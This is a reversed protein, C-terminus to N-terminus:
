DSLGIHFPVVLKKLMKEAVTWTESINSADGFCMNYPLFTLSDALVFRSTIEPQVFFQASYNDVTEAM